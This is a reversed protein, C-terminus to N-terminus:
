DPLHISSERLLLAILRYVRWKVGRMKGPVFDFLFYEAVM